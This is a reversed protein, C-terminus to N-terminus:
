HTEFCTTSSMCVFFVTSYWSMGKPNTVVERFPAGIRSDVNEWHRHVLHLVTHEKTGFAKTCVLCEFVDEDVVYHRNELHALLFHEEEFAKGCM